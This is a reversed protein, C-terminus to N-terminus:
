GPEPLLEHLTVGGGGAGLGQWAAWQDSQQFLQTQDASAFSKVPAVSKFLSGRLLRFLSLM